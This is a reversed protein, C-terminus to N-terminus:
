GERKLRTLLKRAVLALRGGHAPGGPGCLTLSRVLAETAKRKNDTQLLCLGKMFHPEPREPALSSALNLCDVARQTRNQARHTFALCYPFHWDLPTLAQCGEFIVRAADWQASRMLDHGLQAYQYVTAANWGLVQAWTGEGTLFDELRHFFGEDFFDSQETTTRNHASM